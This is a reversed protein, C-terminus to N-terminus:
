NRGELIELARKIVELKELHEIVQTPQLEQFDDVFSQDLAILERVFVKADEILSQELALLHKNTTKPM